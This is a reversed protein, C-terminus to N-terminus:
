VGYTYLISGDLERIDHDYIRFGVSEVLHRSPVNDERVFSWAQRNFNKYVIKMREELSFRGFGMGRYPNLILGSVNPVGLLFVKPPPVSSTIVCLGVAREGSKIIFQEHIGETHALRANEMHNIVQPHEQTHAQYTKPFDISIDTNDERLLHTKLDAAINTFDNIRTYPIIEPSM